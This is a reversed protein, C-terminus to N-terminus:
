IPIIQDDFGLDYQIKLEKIQLWYNEAKELDNRLQFLLALDLIIFDGTRKNLYDKEQTNESGTLEFLEKATPNLTFINEM